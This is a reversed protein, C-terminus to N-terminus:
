QLPRELDAVAEMIKSALRIAMDPDMHAALALGPGGDISVAVGVVVKAGLPSGRAPGVIIQPEPSPARMAIVETALWELPVASM